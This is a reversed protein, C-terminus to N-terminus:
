DEDSPAFAEIEPSGTGDLMWELNTDLIKCIKFLNSGSASKSNGREIESIMAQSVGVALALTIQSLNKAKRRLLLRDAIPTTLQREILNSPLLDM